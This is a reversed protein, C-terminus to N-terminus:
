KRAVKAVLGKILEYDENHILRLFLASFFSIIVTISYILLFSKLSTNYRRLLYAIFLTILASVLLKPVVNFYFKISPFKLIRKEVTAMFLIGTLASLFYAWAAGNAGHKPILLLMLAINLVGSLVSFVATLKPKGAGFAVYFPIVTLALLTYTALLLQLILTSHEAYDAGVWNLLFGHAYVYMPTVGIVLVMLVIRTARRYLTHIRALDGKDFLESSLPFIVTMTAAIFSHIKEAISGPLVYYAVATAGAISGLVLKDLEFLVTGALAGISAYGGFVFIKRVFGKYPRPPFQELKPILKKNIVFYVATALLSIIIGLALLYLLSKHWYIILALSVLTSFTSALLNVKSTIDFRQLSGPIASFTSLALNALFGVGALIFAIRLIPVNPPSVKILSPAFYLGFIGIALGGIIGILIYFFLASKFIKNLSPFDKKQSFEVTYKVLSPAIGLDLFALFGVFSSVLALIGYSETGLQRVIFPTAIFSLTIPWAFALLSYLSNKVTKYALDM